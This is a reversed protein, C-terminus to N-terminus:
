CREEDGPLCSKSLFHRSGEVGTRSRRVEARSPLMQTQVKTKVCGGHFTEVSNFIYLKPSKQITWIKM